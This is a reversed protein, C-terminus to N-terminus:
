IQMWKQYYKECMARIKDRLEEKEYGPWLEMVGKTHEITHCDHCLPLVHNDPPKKGMGAGQLIRQHAPDSPPYKWCQACPQESIWALYKKSRYPKNKM